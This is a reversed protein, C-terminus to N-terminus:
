RGECVEEDSSWAVGDQIDDRNAEETHIDEVRWHIIHIIVM